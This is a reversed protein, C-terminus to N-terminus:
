AGARRQRLGLTAVCGAPAEHYTFAMQPRGAYPVDAYLAVTARVVAVAGRVLAADICRAPTVVLAAAGPLDPNFVIEGM